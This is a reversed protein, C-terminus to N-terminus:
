ELVPIILKQRPRIHNPDDGVTERNANYIIEWNPHGYYDLAIRWLTENPKVTHIYFEPKPNLPQYNLKRNDWQGTEDLRVGDVKFEILQGQGGCGQESHIVQLQYTKEDPNIETSGCEEDNMWATLTSNETAEKTITIEGYFIAPPYLNSLIIPFTPTSSPTPTPQLNVFWDITSEEDITTHLWYGHGFNLKALTNIPQKSQVNPDYFTWPTDSEPNYHYIISYDGQLSSMATTVPQSTLIPYGINNWGPQLDAIEATMALVYLGDEISTPEDENDKPALVMQASALNNNDDLQTDLPQWRADNNGRESQPLFYIRLNNKNEFTEDPLERQLYRFLISPTGDKIQVGGKNIPVQTVRYATGIATLWEDLEPLNYIEQLTYPPTMGGIVGRGIDFILVKGDSSASPASWNNANIGHAYRKGADLQWAHFTGDPGWAYKDTDPRWGASLSIEIMEQYLESICATQNHLFYYGSPCSANENRSQSHQIYLHIHGNLILIPQCPASQLQKPPCDNTWNVSGVFKDGDKTLETTFTEPIDTVQGESDILLHAPIFHAMLMEDEELETFQTVEIVLTQNEKPQISVDVQPRWDKETAPNLQLSTNGLVATKICGTRRVEYSYDFVCLMDGEKAGRAHVLDGVPSGLSIVKETQFLFAQAQGFPIRLPSAQVDEEQQRVLYYFPSLLVNSNEQFHTEINTVALPLIYPGNNRQTSAILWPYFTQITEWDARELEEDALTDDCDGEWEDRTLFESYEDRYADTMVSGYCDILKLSKNPGVGLYNDPLFFLYHSLEHALTRAWDGGSDRTPDGFRNWSAGMRIQGSTYAIQNPESGDRPTITEVIRQTVIGGLNATPRIDNRAYIIVDSDMWNVKNHYINVNGLAVQGNTLDYLIESARLIDSTLQNMYLTDNSADWELSVDIDFLGLANTSTVVLTQERKDDVKHMILGATPSIFGSTYYVSLKDTSQDFIKNLQPVPLLAIIKDDPRIAGQGQLYGNNDTTFPQGEDGVKIPSALRDDPSRYVIANAVPITERTQSMIQLARIQTGRVRFPSTTATAIPRNLAGGTSAMYQYTGSVAEGTSQTYAVFRLVINDSQGFFESATTDWTFVHTNEATHAPYTSTKLATTQTDSTPRAERWCDGGDTSYFFM